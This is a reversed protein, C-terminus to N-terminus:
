VSCCSDISVDGSLPVSLAPLLFVILRLAEVETAVGCDVGPGPVRVLPLHIM